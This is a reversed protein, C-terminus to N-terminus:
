AAAALQTRILSNKLWRPRANAAPRSSSTYIYFGQKWRAEASQATREGRCAAPSIPSPLIKTCGTASTIRMHSLRCAQARTHHAATGTLPLLCLPPLLKEAKCSCTVICQPVQTPLTLSNTIKCRKVQEKQLRVASVPAAASRISPPMCALLRSARARICSRQESQWAHNVEAINGRSRSSM